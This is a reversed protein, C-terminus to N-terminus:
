EVTETTPAPVPTPSVSPSPTPLQVDIETTNGTPNPNQAPETRSLGPIGYIFFLLVAFAAIVVGVLLGLGIGGEPNQDRPNNIITSMSKYM